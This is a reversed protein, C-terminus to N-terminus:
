LQSNSDQSIYVLCALHKEIRTRPVVQLAHKLHRGAKFGTHSCPFIYCMFPLPDPGLCSVELFERNNRIKRGERAKKM